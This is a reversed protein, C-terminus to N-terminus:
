SSKAAFLNKLIFCNRVFNYQAFWYIINQLYLKDQTHNRKVGKTVNARLLKTYSSIKLEFFLDQFFQM